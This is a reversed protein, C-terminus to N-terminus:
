HIISFLCIVNQRNLYKPQTPSSTRICGFILEASFIAGIVISSIISLTLTWHGKFVNNNPSFFDNLSVNRHFQIHLLSLFSQSITENSENSLIIEMNKTKESTMVRHHARSVKATSLSKFRSICKSAVIILPCVCLSYSFIILKWKSSKSVECSFTM